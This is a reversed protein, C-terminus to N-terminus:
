LAAHPQNHDIRAMDPERALGIQPQAHPGTGVAREREADRIDHDLVAPEVAIEDALPAIPRMEHAGVGAPQQGLRVNRRIAIRAPEKRPILTSRPQHRVVGRGSLIGSLIGALIISARSAERKVAFVADACAAALDDAMRSELEIGAQAPLVRGVGDLRDAPNWARLDFLRRPQDPVRAWHGIVRPAAVLLM